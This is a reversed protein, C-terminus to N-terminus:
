LSWNSDVELEQWTVMEKRIYKYYGAVAIKVGNDTCYKLSPVTIKGDVISQLGSRLRENAAVGGVVVLERINYDRMAQWTKKVLVETVAEQFEHALMNREDEDISGKEKVIKQTEYLLATKLGSFSFNYDNSDLMPRPLKVEGKKNSGACKEAAKAISPGGPYSLGLIRAAKDFSEGAADDITAGIERYVGYDDMLILETHGGSVILVLCPFNIEHKEKGSEPLFASFIHGELHNVAVIKKQAIMGITKAVMTGVLLAGLLGPGSAVAVADIDKWCLRSEFLAEKMLINIYEVHVRSALEPVVGGYQQQLDVSSKLKEVVIKQGDKVIAIGTEDCSTEIGLILTMKKILFILCLNFVIGLYKYLLMIFSMNHSNDGFFCDILEDSGVVWAGNSLSAVPQIDFFGIM